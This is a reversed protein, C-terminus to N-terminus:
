SAVTAFGDIKRCVKYTDTKCNYIWIRFKEGCQRRGIFLADRVNLAQCYMLWLASEFDKVACRLSAKPVLKLLHELVIKYNNKKREAMLCVTLLIKKCYNGSRVFARFSYLQKFPKRVVDFIGDM